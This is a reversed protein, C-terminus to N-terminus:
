RAARACWRARAAGGARLAWQADGLVRERAERIWGASQESPQGTWKPLVLLVTDAKLLARIAEESQRGPRPEAIVLVSGPSLKALSNHPEQGGAAGAADAGRRHRRPRHGLAFVHQPRHQRSRGGRGRGMFFLSIAFVVVAAAIWGILLRRSFVGEGSM